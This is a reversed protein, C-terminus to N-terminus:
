NVQNAKISGEWDNKQVIYHLYVIDTLLDTTNM